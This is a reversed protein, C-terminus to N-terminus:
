KKGKDNNPNTNVVQTWQQGPKPTPPATKGEVLTTKQRGSQYIGSDPVKEGPTVKKPM